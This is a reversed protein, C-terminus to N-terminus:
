LIGRPMSTVHSWNKMAKIKCVQAIEQLQSREEQSLEEDEAIFDEVMIFFANFGEDGLRKSLKQKSGIWQNEWWYTLPSYSYFNFNEMRVVRELFNVFWYQMNAFYKQNYERLKEFFFNTEEETLFRDKLVTKTEELTNSFNFFPNFFSPYM